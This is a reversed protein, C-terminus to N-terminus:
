DLHEILKNIIILMTDLILQHEKSTCTETLEEKQSKKEQDKSEDRDIKVVDKIDQAEGFFETNPRWFYDSYKPPKKECKLVKDHQDKVIRPKASHTRSAQTTDKEGVDAAKTSINIPPSALSNDKLTDIGGIDLYDQEQTDESSDNVESDLDCYITFENHRIDNIVEWNFTCECRKDYYIKSSTDKLDPIVRITVKVSKSSSSKLICEDASFLLMYSQDGGIRNDSTNITMVTHSSADATAKSFIVDAEKCVIDQIRSKSPSHLESNRFNNGFGAGESSHILNQIQSNYTVPDLVYYRHNRTDSKVNSHLTNVGPACVFISYLVFYFIIMLKAPTFLANGPYNLTSPTKLYKNWLIIRHLSQM